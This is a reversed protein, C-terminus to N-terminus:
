TAWTRTYRGGSVDKCLVHVPTDDVLFMKVYCMYQRLRGSVDKCLVHVPTDDVLFMKIYGM